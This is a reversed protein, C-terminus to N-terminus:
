WGTVGHLPIPVLGTHASILSTPSGGFSWHTPPLCGQPSPWPGGEERAGGPVVMLRLFEHPCLLPSLSPFQALRLGGLRAALGWPPPPLPCLAGPAEMEM